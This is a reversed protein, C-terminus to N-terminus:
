SREMFHQLQYQKSEPPITDRYYSRIPKNLFWHWNEPRSCERDYFRGVGDTLILVHDPYEKQKSLFKEIICYHEDGFNGLYYDYKNPIVKAVKGAFVYIDTNFYKKPFSLASKMFWRSESECSGSYDLFISVNYKNMRFKRDERIDPVFMDTRSLIDNFRKPPRSWDEGEDWDSIDASFQKTLSIWKNNPPVRLRPITVISDSEDVYDVITRHEKENEVDSSMMKDIEAEIDSLDEILYSHDAVGECDLAEKDFEESSLLNYYFEFCERTSVSKHKKPFKTKVNIHDPMDELWFGFMNELRHNIVLDMAINAIEKNEAEAMKKGHGLLIHEMEHCIVFLKQDLTLPNFFAPNILFNIFGGERDYSICAREVKDTFVPRTIGWFKQFIVHYRSLGRQIEFDIM